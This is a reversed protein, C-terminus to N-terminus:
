ARINIYQGLNPDSSMEAFKVTTEAIMKQIEAMQQVQQNMMTTSIAMQTPGTVDMIKKKTFTVGGQQLLSPNQFPTNKFILGSVM